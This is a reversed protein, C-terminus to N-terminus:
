GFVAFVKGGGNASPRAACFRPFRPLLPTVHAWTFFFRDRRVRSQRRVAQLGCFRGNRFSDEAFRFFQKRSASNRLLRCDRRSNSDQREGNRNQHPYRHGKRFSRGSPRFRPRFGTGAAKGWSTNSFVGFRGGDTRCLERERRLTRCRRRASHLGGGERLDKRFGEGRENLCRCNTRARSVGHIFQM